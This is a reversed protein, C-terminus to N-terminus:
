VFYRHNISHGRPPLRKARILSYEENLKKLIYSYFMMNKISISTIPRELLEKYEKIRQQKEAIKRSEELQKQIRHPDDHFRTFAM